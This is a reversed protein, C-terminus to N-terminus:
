LKNLIKNIKLFSKDQDFMILAEKSPLYPKAVIKKAERIAYNFWNKDNMDIVILREVM